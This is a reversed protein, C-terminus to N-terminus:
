NCKTHSRMRALASKVFDPDPKPFNDDFIDIKPIGVFENKTNLNSKTAREGKLLSGRNTNNNSNSYCTTSEYEFGTLRYHNTLKKGRFESTIAGKLSLRHLCRRVTNYHIFVGNERCREQISGVSPEGHGYVPDTLFCLAELVARENGSLMCEESVAKLWILKQQNAQKFQTDPLWDRRPTNTIHKRVNSSRSTSINSKRRLESIIQSM